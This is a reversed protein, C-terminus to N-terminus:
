SSPSGLATSIQQIAEAEAPSVSQDNEKHASAVRNSLTLVFRRYGDVEEDTAKGVPLAVANRIHELCAERLEEASHFRTHDVKPNAAVIEDLLESEGHQSRAEVYAKSMAMPERFTGGRSAASVLLGASPPAELIVTWEEPSFDAKTTM